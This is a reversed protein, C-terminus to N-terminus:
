PANEASPPPADSAFEGKLDAGHGPRPPPVVVGEIMTPGEACDPALNLHSDLDVHDFLAAISAGAAIAVSSEGMCGIMTGLGHARATAVLRLAETIGGCKMLKVNVGDVRGALRPVDASFRCSEDVFIPLPRQRYLEPLADEAGEPLPQEVYDADREALWRMMSKAGSLDWGGNADVRLGAGFPQAAERAAAYSARDAELGQPNGLKVKLFKAGTRQLMEPVRRRIVEPPNIGITVSTPVTPRGLGLVECLPLGCRKALLDWLAIDLAAQAPPPVQRDRALAWVESVAKGEIGEALLAQLAARAQQLSVAGAGSIKGAAMEGIGTRGDAELLVFLNVTEAIVGRSIALPYRKTLRIERFRMQM